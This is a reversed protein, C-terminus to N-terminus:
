QAFGAESRDFFDNPWGSEKAAFGFTYFAGSLRQGLFETAFNRAFEIIEHTQGSDASFGRVDNEPVRKSQRGANDDVSMHFPKRKPETQGLEFLRWADFGVQQCEDRLRIPDPNGV